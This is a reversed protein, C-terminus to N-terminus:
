GALNKLVYILTSVLHLFRPFANTFIFFIVFLFTGLSLQKLLSNYQASPETRQVALLNKLIFYSAPIQLLQIWDFSILFDYIFFFLFASGILFTHYNRARELGIKVPITHKGSARDNEMDRINNTNLVATCLFGIASAPFFIIFDIDEYFEFHSNLLFTGAVAVWGFFVFVAIDGLGSYGYANKGITYKLAAAIALIGTIFFLLFPLNIKGGTSLTLLYIGSVLCVLVFFIIMSFMQKPSINGSQLARQNGIRKETDTGKMFDGYDNALNSLIQLAVATLLCLFTIRINLSHHIGALGAGTIIGSVALPLTRLRFASIWTKLKLM